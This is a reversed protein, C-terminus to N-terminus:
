RQEKRPHVSFGNPRGPPRFPRFKKKMQGRTWGFIRRLAVHTVAITHPSDELYDHVAQHCDGCLPMLDTLLEHGLRTYTRHHMQFRPDGCGLCAQPLRSERYRRKLNAWHESRLYQAYTMGLARLRAQM